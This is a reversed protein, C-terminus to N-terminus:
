FVGRYRADEFLREMREAFDRASSQDNAKYAKKMADATAQREMVSVNQQKLDNFALDRYKRGIARLEQSIRTEADPRFGNIDGVFKQVDARRYFRRIAQEYTQGNVKVESMRKNLWQQERETLDIGVKKDALVPTMKSIMEWTEDARAVGRPFFPIALQLANLGSPGMGPIAPLPNGTVQDYHLPHGGRGPMRDGIKNLLIGFGGEHARWVDDVTSGEYVTDYPDTINAVYNLLGGFPTQSAVWNNILRGKRTGDEDDNTFADMLTKLGQLFSQQYLGSAAVNALGFMTADKEEQTAYGSFTAMDTVIRMVNALPEGLRDFPLVTNTGPIKITYPQGGSKLWIEQARGAKSRNEWRGPGGGTIWGSMAGTYFFAIMSGTFAVQGMVRYGESPDAMASLNKMIVAETPKSFLTAGEKGGVTRRMSAVVGDGVRQLGRGAADLGTSEWVGQKLINLPTRIFPFFPRLFPGVVPAQVLQTFAGAIANQEQFTSLAAQERLRGAYEYAINNSLQPGDFAMGIENTIYKEYAARNDWFDGLKGEEIGRRVGMAAAEGRMTVHKVLEDSGMMVRSPIRYFKGLANVMGAVSDDEIGLNQATIAPGMYQRTRGFSTTKGYISKEQQLAQWGLKFGDSLGSYMSTLKAVAEASAQRAAQSNSFTIGMQAGLLQFSPRAFAWTLGMANTVMSAPSWLLGNIMVEDWIRGPLSKMGRTARIIDTPDNSATMKKAIVQLREVAESTRGSNFLDAIEEFSNKFNGIDAADAQRFTFDDGYMQRMKGQAVFDLGLEQLGTGLEFAGKNVAEVTTAMGDLLRMLQAGEELALQGENAKLLWKSAQESIAMSSAEMVDQSLKTYFGLEKPSLKKLNGADDLVKNRLLGTLRGMVEETNYKGQDDVAGLVWNFATRRKALRADITNGARNIGKQAAETRAMEGFVDDLREYIPALKVACTGKQAM